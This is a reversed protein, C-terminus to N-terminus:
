QVTVKGTMGAHLSCHYDFTGATPFVRKVTTSSTTGVDAPSGQTDFVVNHQVTEFTYYITDGPAISVNSPNFALGTTATVRAAHVLTGGGGGGGGGGGTGPNTGSDGGCAVFTVVTVLAAVGSMVKSM